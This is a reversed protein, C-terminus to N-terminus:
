LVRKLRKKLKQIEIPRMFLYLIEERIGRISKQNALALKSVTQVSDTLGSRIGVMAYKTGPLMDQLKPLGNFVEIQLSKM